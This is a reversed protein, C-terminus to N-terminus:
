TLCMTTRKPHTDKGIVCGLGRANTCEVRSHQENKIHAMVTWGRNQVDKPNHLGGFFLVGCTALLSAINAVYEQRVAFVGEYGTLNSLFCEM